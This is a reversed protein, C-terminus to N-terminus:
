AGRECSERLLADVADRLQSPRFPKALVMDAGLKRAAPLYDIEVARGGGSVCLVRLKLHKKRVELILGIGDLEPMMIDAVMLDVPHRELVHLAATGSAAESVVHGAEELTTRM